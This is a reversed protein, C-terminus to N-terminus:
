KVVAIKRPQGKDVRWYLGTSPPGSLRRGALDYYGDRWARIPPDSVALPDGVSVTLDDLFFPGLAGIAFRIRRIGQDSGFEVYTWKCASGLPDGSCGTEARTGPQDLIVEGAFVGAATSFKVRRPNPNPALPGPLECSYGYGCSDAGNCWYTYNISSSYWFAVRKVDQDFIILASDSQGGNSGPWGSPLWAVAGPSPENAFDGSDDERQRGPPGGDPIPFYYGQGTCPHCTNGIGIQDCDWGRRWVGGFTAVVPGIQQDRLVVGGSPYPTPYPASFDLTYNTAHAEVALALLLVASLLKV